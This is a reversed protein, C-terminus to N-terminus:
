VQNEGSIIQRLRPLLVFLMTKRVWKLYQRSGPEIGLISAYYPGATLYNVALTNFSHLFMEIDGDTVRMPITDIFNQKTKAFFDRIREYGPIVDHEEAQVLNLAIIRLASPHKVAFDFFRDLYLGLGTEPDLKELGEFWTINARYYEDTAHQIVEEFLAAKSPFYYNVLPHEIGAAKGIMRISATHYPYEAFVQTAAALIKERTPKKHQGKKKPISPRKKPPNTKQPSPM